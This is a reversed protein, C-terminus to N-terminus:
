AEKAPVLSQIFEKYKAKRAKFEESNKQLDALRGEYERIDQGHKMKGSMTDHALAYQEEPYHIVIRCFARPM